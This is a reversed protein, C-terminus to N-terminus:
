CLRLCKEFVTVVLLVLVVVVVTRPMLSGKRTWFIEEYLVFTLRNCGSSFSLYTGCIHQHGVQIVTCPAVYLTITTIHFFNLVYWPVHFHFLGDFIGWLVIQLATFGGGCFLGVGICLVITAAFSVFPFRAIINACGGSITFCSM